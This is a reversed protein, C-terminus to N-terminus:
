NYINESIKSNFNKQFATFRINETNEASREIIFSVKMPLNKGEDGL